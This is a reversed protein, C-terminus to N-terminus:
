PTWVRYTVKYKITGTTTETTTNSLRIRVADNVVTGDIQEYLGNGYGMSTIGSVTGGAIDRALSCGIDATVFRLAAQVAVGTSSWGTVYIHFDIIEIITGAGQAAIITTDVAGSTFDPNTITGVVRTISDTGVDSLFALTGTKDPFKVIRAATLDENSLKVNWDSANTGNDDFALRIYGTTPMNSITMYGSAASSNGANGGAIRIPPGSTASYTGLNSFTKQGTVTQTTNTTVYNTLDTDLLVTGASDPFTYIRDATLSDFDLIGAAQAVTIHDQYFYYQSLGLYGIAGGSAYGGPAADDNFIIQGSQAHIASTFSKLGGISQTTTLDVYDDALALTGDENPLTFTRLATLNDNNITWGRGGSSSSLFTWNDNANMMLQGAAGGNDTLSPVGSNAYMSFLNLAASTANSEYGGKAIIFNNFSKNGAISQATTLDVYNGELAVTGSVNPFTYTREATNTFDFAIGNDVTSGKKFKLKNDKSWLIAQTGHNLGFWDITSADWGLIVARTDSPREELIISGQHYSTAAFTNSGTFTQTNALYVDGGGGGGLGFETWATGTWGYFKENVTHFFTFGKEGTTLTPFTIANESRFKSTLNYNFDVAQGFIHSM